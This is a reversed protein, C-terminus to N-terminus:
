NIPMGPTVSTVTVVRANRLMSTSEYTTRVQKPRTGDAARKLTNTTGLISFSTADASGIIPTSGHAIMGVKIAVIPPKTTQNTYQEQTLYGLKGATATDKSQVGILIKFQDVNNIFEQGADPFNEVAGNRIRGADCALVLPQINNSRNDSTTGTPTRLFYREIVTDNAAITTGECDPMDTGTINQFQITLQDSAIDTNSIGSWGNTPISTTPVTNSTLTFYGTDTIANSVNAAALVVGGGATTNDIQFNINGLNALRLHSELMQLGFVSADQLESGSKQITSTRANTIYIQVVAASILLGLVLSIMLEILTFGLEASRSVTPRVTQM